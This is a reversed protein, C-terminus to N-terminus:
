FQISGLLNMTFGHVNVSSGEVNSRGITYRINAEVNFLSQTQYRVGVGPTFLLVDHFYIPAEVIPLYASSAFYAFHTYPIFSWQSRGEFPISGIYKMEIQPGNSITANAITIEDDSLRFRAKLYFIHKSSGPTVIGFRSNLIFRMRAKRITFPDGIANGKTDVSTLKDDLYYTMAADFSAHVRRSYSYDAGVDFTFEDGPNYQGLTDIPQYEGRHLYAGGINMIVKQSLEYAYAAGVQFDFGQGFSQVQYGLANFGAISSMIQKEKSPVKLGSPFNIDGIFLLHEDPLFYSAGIQTDGLGSIPSISDSTASFPINSVRLFFTQSIPFVISAPFSIQSYTKDGINLSKNELGIRVTTYDIMLLSTPPVLSQQANLHFANAISLSLIILAIRSSKEKMKIAELDVM